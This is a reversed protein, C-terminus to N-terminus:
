GHSTRRGDERSERAGERREAPEQQGKSGAREAAGESGGGKTPEPERQNGEQSRRLLRPLREDGRPKGYSATPNSIRAQVTKSGFKCIYM